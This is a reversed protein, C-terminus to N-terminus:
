ITVGGLAGPRPRWAPTASNSRSSILARVPLASGACLGTAHTEATRRREVGV